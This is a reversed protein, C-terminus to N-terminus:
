SCHMLSRKELYIEPEKIDSAIIVLFLKNLLVTVQVLFHLEPSVLRSSGRAVDSLTLNSLFTASRRGIRLPQRLVLKAPRPLFSTM